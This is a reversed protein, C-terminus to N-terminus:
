FKELFFPFGKMGQNAGSKREKSSSVGGFPGKFAETRTATTAEGPRERIIM